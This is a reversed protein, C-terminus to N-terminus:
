KKTNKRPTDVFVQTIKYGPEFEKEAIAIAVQPAHCEYRAEGSPKIKYGHPIEKVERM